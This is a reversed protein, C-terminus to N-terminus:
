FVTRRNLLPRRPRVAHAPFCKSVPESEVQVEALSSGNAAPNPALEASSHMCGAGRLPARLKKEEQLDPRNDRSRRAVTHLVTSPVVASVRMVLPCIRRTPTIREAPGSTWGTRISRPLSTAPPRVCRCFDPRPEAAAATQRARQIHSRRSPLAFM